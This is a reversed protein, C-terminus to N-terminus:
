AVATTPLMLVFETGRAPESVVRVGGGAAEVITRVIALGLGSNGLERRSTEAPEFSRAIRGPAIGVGDDIVRLTAEDRGEERQGRVIIEGDRHTEEIAQFANRLLNTLVQVLSDAALRVHLGFPVDIQVRTKSIPRGAKALKAARFACDRADSLGVVAEAPNAPQAGRIISSAHRLSQLVDRLMAEPTAGDLTRGNALAEVVLMSAGIANQVDHQLVAAALDFAVACNSAEVSLSNRQVSESERLSETRDEGALIVGLSRPGSSPLTAALFEVQRRSDEAGLAVLAGARQQTGARQIIEDLLARDAGEFSDLMSAGLQPLADFLARFEQNFGVLRGEEDLVAISRPCHGLMSRLRSDEEILAAITDRVGGHPGPSDLWALVGHMAQPTFADSRWTWHGSAAALDEAATM